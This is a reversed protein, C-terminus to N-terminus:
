KLTKRSNISLAQLMWNTLPLGPIVYYSQAAPHRGGQQAATNNSKTDRCLAGGNGSLSAGLLSDGLFFSPFLTFPCHLNHKTYINISQTGWYKAFASEMQFQLAKQQEETKAILFCYCFGVNIVKIARFINATSCRAQVPSRGWTNYSPSAKSFFINMELLQFSNEKERARAVNQESCIVWQRWGSSQDLGTMKFFHRVQWVDTRCGRRVDTKSLRERSEDCESKKKKKGKLTHMDSVNHM